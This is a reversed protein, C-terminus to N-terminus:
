GSIAAQAARHGSLLAGHLMTPAVATAAEGAFFLRDHVSAALEVYDAMTSGVKPFSYSGTAFPDSFWRTLCTAIPDGVVEGFMQRLSILAAQILDADQRAEAQRAAQGSLFGVLTAPQSTPEALNLNLFLAPSNRDAALNALYDLSRPWFPQAFQLVIKNLVGMGLRNIAAQKAPPLPPTFTVQGSQLVGLPLTIIARDGQFVQDQTRVTVGAPGYGIQKVIQGYRLDLGRALYEVIPGYGSQMLHNEPPVGMGHCYFDRASWTTIDDGIYDELLRGLYNAGGTPLNPLERPPEVRPAARLWPLAQALSIDAEPSPARDPNATQLWAIAALMAAQETPSVPQGDLGYFATRQIYTGRRPLNLDDALATLPNDQPDHIWAAGLDIAVGNLYRTQMRGGPRDRAELVTASIGAQKLTQAAAMGAMGAGVVLISRRHM